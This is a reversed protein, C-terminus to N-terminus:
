RGIEQDPPIPSWNATSSLVPPVDTTRWLNPHAQSGWCCSIDTYRRQAESREGWGIRQDTCHLADIVYGDGRSLPRMVRSLSRVKGPAAQRRSSHPTALF